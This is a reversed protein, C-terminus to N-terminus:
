RTSDLHKIALEETMQRVLEREEGELKAIIGKLLDEKEEGVAIKEISPASKLIYGGNRGDSSEFECGLQKLLAIDDKVTNTAVNFYKGVKSASISDNMGIYEIEHLLREGKKGM